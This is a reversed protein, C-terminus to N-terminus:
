ILHARELAPSAGPGSPAGAQKPIRIAQGCKLCVARGYPAPKRFVGCCKGMAKISAMLAQRKTKEEDERVENRAKREAKALARKARREAKRVAKRQYVGLFDEEGRDVAATYRALWIADVENDDLPRGNRRLLGTEADAAYQAPQALALALAMELKKASGNGTAFVKLTAVPVCFVDLNSRRAAVWIVARLSAWLQTQAQSGAFIVDEFVIRTVGAALELAVFDLFRAFRIEATREKGERRQQRLEEESALLETGSEIIEQGAMLAWGTRTGLDLALTRVVAAQTRADPPAVPMEGGTAAPGPNVILRQTIGTEGPEAIIKM